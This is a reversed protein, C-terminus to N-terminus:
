GSDAEHARRQLPVFSHPHPSTSLMALSEAITMGVSIIWQPIDFVASSATERPNVM